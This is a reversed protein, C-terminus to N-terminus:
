IHNHHGYIIYGYISFFTVGMIIYSISEPIISNWPEYDYVNAIEPFVHLSEASVIMMLFANWVAM